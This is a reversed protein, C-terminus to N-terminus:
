VVDLLNLTLITQITSESSTILFAFQDFTEPYIFICKLIAFATTKALDKLLLYFADSM